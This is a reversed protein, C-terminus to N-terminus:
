DTIKQIACANHQDPIVGACADQKIGNIRTDSEKDFGSTQRGQLLQEANQQAQRQSASVLGYASERSAYSRRWPSGVRLAAAEVVASEGSDGGGASSPSTVSIDTPMKALPNVPVVAPHDVLNAKLIVGSLGM